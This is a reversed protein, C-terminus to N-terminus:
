SSEVRPCIEAFRLVFETHTHGRPVWFRTRNLHLEHSLDHAAIFQWVSQAKPDQNLVYYELMDM